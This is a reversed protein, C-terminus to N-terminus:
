RIPTLATQTPVWRLEPVLALLSRIQLIVNSLAETDRIIRNICLRARDVDTREPSLWNQCAHSNVLVACLMEVAEFTKNSRAAPQLTGLFQMEVSGRTGAVPDMHEEPQHLRSAGAVSYMRAVFESEESCRSLKRPVESNLTENIAM